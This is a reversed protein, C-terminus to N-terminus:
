HLRPRAPRLPTEDSTSISSCALEQDVVCVRNEAIAWKRPLYGFEPLIWFRAREGYLNVAAGDWLSCGQQNCTNFEYPGRQGHLWTKGDKSHLSVAASYGGHDERNLYEIGFAWYEGEHVFVRTAHTNPVQVLRWTKGADSTVAYGVAVQPHRFAILYHTANLAAVSLIESFSRLAEDSRLAGVDEWHAGGDRTLKVLGNVAAIGEVENLIGDSVDLVEDSTVIIGHSADAFSFHQVTGGADRAMWTNGGDTTSFLLSKDGIAQGVKENVFNIDSLAQGDSRSHSLTWTAGGDSSRAIGESDGCVWLTSGVATINRARFPPSPAPTPPIAQSPSPTHKAACGSMVLIWIVPVLVRPIRM